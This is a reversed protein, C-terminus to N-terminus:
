KDLDGVAKTFFQETETVTLRVMGQPAQMSHGYELPQGYPLNNILYMTGGIKFSLIKQQGVDLTARGDRDIADTTWDDPAGDAVHWNARFRGGVYGPPPAHKWLDPNGVPSKMVLSTLMDMAVKQVVLDRNAKTREIFAAFNSRFADNKSM